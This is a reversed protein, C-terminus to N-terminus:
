LQRGGAARFQMDQKRRRCHAAMPCLPRGCVWWPRSVFTHHICRLAEADGQGGGLTLRNTGSARAPRQESTLAGQVSTVLEPKGGSCRLLLLSGGAQVGVVPAGPIPM